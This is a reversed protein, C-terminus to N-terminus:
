GRRAVRNQVFYMLQVRNQVGLKRHANYTHKKVTDPSIFLREAIEKHSLGVLLLEVVDSERASLGLAVLEPKLDAPLPEAPRALARRRLFRGLWLLAPYNAGVQVLAIVTDPTETGVVMTVDRVALDFALFGGALLLVFRRLGTRDLPDDLRRLALLGYAIWGYLFGTKLAFAVFSGAALVARPPRDGVLAGGVSLGVAAVGWIAVFAIKYTRSLEGGTMQTMFSSLFYVAVSFAVVFLPRTATSLQGWMADPLFRGLLLYQVVSLLVLAGWSALFFTYPPLWPQRFRAQLRHAMWVALGALFTVVFFYGIAVAQVPLNYCARASGV